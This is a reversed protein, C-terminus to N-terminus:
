PQEERNAYPVFQRNWVDQGAEAAKPMLAYSIADRMMGRPDSVVPEQAARARFEPSNRRIMAAADEAAQVAREAGGRRLAGGVAVPVSGAGLGIATSTVPDMGAFHAALGAAGGVKGAVETQAWGGGGGLRNGWMRQQNALWSPQSAAMVAELEDPTAYALKARGTIPNIAALEQMGQLTKNELNRGSHVTAARTGTRDIQREVTEATEGARYNGRAAAVNARLEAQAEPTGWVVAGRPPALMFQEIQDAALRGAVGQGPANATGSLGRLQQRLTEMDSATVPGGHSQWANLNRDITTYVGPASAENFSRGAPSEIHSQIHAALRPGVNQHYAVPANRIADYQQQAAGLIPDGPIGRGSLEGTSPTVWSRAGKNIAVVEGPSEVRAWPPPAYAAQIQAVQPAGRAARSASGFFPIAGVVDSAAEGFQGRGAHFPLDAASLVAGMPTVTRGIDVLGRGVRGAKYPEAGLAMLGEQAKEKLYDTWSLPDRARLEGFPQGPKRVPPALYAPTTPTDYRSGGAPRNTPTSEEDPAPIPVTSPKDYRSPM